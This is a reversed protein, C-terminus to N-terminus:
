IHSILIFFYTLFKDLICFESRSLYLIFVLFQVTCVKTLSKYEQIGNIKSFILFKNKSTSYCFLKYAQQNKPIFTSDNWSFLLTFLVFYNMQMKWRKTPNMFLLTPGLYNEALCVFRSHLISDLCESLTLNPEHTKLKRQTGHHNVFFFFFFFFM